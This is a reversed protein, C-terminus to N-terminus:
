QGLMENLLKDAGYLKRLAETMAATHVAVSRNSEIDYVYDGVLSEINGDFILGVIEGDRNIVPSGSNGGIIDNTTVFNFPTALDLKARGELYRSPLWFPGQYDFSAARDYLGYFTTKPPAKTGNMPYGLVQGYSLRLTFTADPYTSRGYVAFRAKGLAEGARQAVSQVNDQTWKVFERRMPDLQRALVIEPDTSAAVAAEGGEILQKRLAPDDLHTGNVLAMAAEQPSKGGLVIKIFPDTPGVRQLDLDLAGTIQAIEMDRYVPAPSFLEFRLSDLQADHYGPLREGDPKKIEAVYEVITKAFGSLRSDTSHFYEEKVRSAAKQEAAAIEDWASGYAAKWQPNALVAAKFKEEDARKTDMVHKDNLGRYEGDLAKVSNELELIETTSQRAHEPSTASYKRLVTLRARLIELLNPLLTDRDTELQAVTDLRQTSGPNGSVFVLEQDAAGKPNWKLYNPSDIPKGNEYVRFLAMDLDYRPYTFNDPDGGFFAAQEEPAFVIRVDTYKKYRYLWYEGGQYLTIVDSRLGTKQQSEKEIEAIAQRRLAFEDEPKKASKVAAQIRGTVDETSILVNVELDPSKIEQDPTAAYFGNKIYDHEPTSNKQLQGRAVHHNTLLLGHPSVFSGSGGDNLRASALRVHDLWPQTLTFHYKEEILKTPPHDFTWLGEDASVAVTVLTGCILANTLIRM